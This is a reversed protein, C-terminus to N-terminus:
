LLHKKSLGRFEVIYDRTSVKYHLLDGTILLHVPEIGMAYRLRLQLVPWVTIEGLSFRVRELKLKSRGLHSSRNSM